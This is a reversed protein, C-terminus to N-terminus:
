VYQIMELLRQDLIVPIKWGTKYNTCREIAEDLPVRIPLDDLCYSAADLVTFLVNKEIPYFYLNLM